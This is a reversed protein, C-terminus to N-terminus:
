VLDECLLKGAMTIKRKGDVQILGQQLLYCEADRRIAGQELNTEAAIQTLTCEGHKEIVKLVSVENETLGLPRMGLLSCFDNFLDIGFFNSSKAKCFMCIKQALKVAERANLRALKSIAELIMSSDDFVIEHKDTIGRIIQALEDESYPKINVIEFRNRLPDEIKEPNTSAFMFINNRMDFEIEEGNYHVSRIVSEEVNLITLLLNQIDKNLKHAEDIFLVTFRRQLIPFVITKFFEDVNKITSANVEHFYAGYGDEDMIFSAACRALMTKGGGRSGQFFIPPMTGAANFGEIFFSLKNKAEQQGIIGEFYNQM